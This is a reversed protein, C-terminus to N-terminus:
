PGTAVYKPGHFNGGGGGRFVLEDELLATLFEQSTDGM